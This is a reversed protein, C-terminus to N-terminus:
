DGPSAGTLVDEATLGPVALLDPRALLRRFVEATRVFYFGDSAREDLTYAVDLCRRAVVQGDDDVVPQNSVRGIAVFVSASGVEYLHHFPANAGLSGLNVLYISTYLPIADHLLSPLANHYDLSRVARGVLGLVPRPWTALLDVLKDDDGREDGRKGALAVNVRDRVDEVTEDGTFVLRVETEDAEDTMAKKVIFSISLEKHQYTRRGVVFRNVEPRLHATRALATLLVHFLTIREAPPRDRNVEDLWALLADVEIRQPYYVTAEARTPMLHPMIRRIAPLDAVHIGDRRRTFVM